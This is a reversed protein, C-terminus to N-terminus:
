VKEWEKLSTLTIVQKIGIIKELDTVLTRYAKTFSRINLKAILLRDGSVASISELGKVKTLQNLVMESSGSLYILLYAKVQSMAITIIGILILIIGMGKFLWFLPTFTTVGFVSTGTIFNGLFTIPIGLVVSFSIIATVTSMKAIGLSRIYVIFALTSVLMVIIIYTVNALNLISLGAYFNPTIFPIILVSILITNFALSWLRINLSDNKRNHHLMRKAQRLAITYVMIGLNYPGLVVLITVWDVALDTTTILFIGILIMVISQTELISPTEKYNVSEAVILYVIVMQTFPLLISPSTAGVIYFYSLTSVASSLGAVILLLLLKGKPIIFGRFNPDIYAGILHKKRLPIRMILMLVLTAVLGIWMSLFSYAYPDSHIKELYYKDLGIYIATLVAAILPFLIIKFKRSLAFGLHPM